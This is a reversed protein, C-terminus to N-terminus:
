HVKEQSGTFSEMVGQQDGFIELLEHASRIFFDTFDDSEEPTLNHLYIFNVLGVFVMARYVDMMDVGPDERMDELWVHLTEFIVKLDIDESQFNFHEDQLKVIIERLVTNITTIAM